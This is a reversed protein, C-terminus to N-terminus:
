VGEPRIRCGMQRTTGAYLAPRSSGQDPLGGGIAEGRDQWRLGDASTAHYVTSAYAHVGAKRQTHWVYYTKGVRIVNGPDQRDLKPDYGLGDIEGTRDNPATM